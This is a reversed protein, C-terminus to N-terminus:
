ETEEENYGAVEVLFNDLKETIRGMSERERRTLGKCLDPDGLFNLLNRCKFLLSIADFIDQRMVDSTDPPPPTPPAVKKPSRELEEIQAM